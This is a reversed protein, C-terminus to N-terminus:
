MPTVYKGHGEVAMTHLAANAKFGWALLMSGCGVGAQEQMSTSKIFKVRGKLFLIGCKNLRHFWQTDTRAMVLAVGNGNKEMCDLWLGTQSGYPPNCWVLPSPMDTKRMWCEGLGNDPLRIHNVAPVWPTPVPAACPDLDFRLGLAEFIWSPTYWEVTQAATSEHTFGAKNNTM